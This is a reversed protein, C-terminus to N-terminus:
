QKKGQTIMLTILPLGNKRRQRRNGRQSPDPFVTLPHFRYVYNTVSEDIFYLRFSTDRERPLVLGVIDGTRVSVSTELTCEYYRSNTSIEQLENRGGCSGLPISEGEREYREQQGEIKRWIQLLPSTDRNTMEGAAGWGTLTGNCSVRLDPIIRTSYGGNSGSTREKFCNNSPESSDEDTQRNCERGGSIIEVESLFGSICSEDLQGTTFIFNHVPLRTAHM